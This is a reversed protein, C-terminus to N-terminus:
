QFKIKVIITESLFFFLCLIIFLKWYQKGNSQENYLENLKMKNSSILSFQESHDKILKNLESENYFESSSEARSYNYSISNILSDSCRILYNEAKKIQDKPFLIMGKESHNSQEPIFDIKLENNLIHFPADENKVQKIKIAKPYGIQHYIPTSNTTNRTLNILSPVIIPHTVLNTWKPNLQTTFLYIQGKGYNIKSLIPDKGRTELLNEVLRDGSNQTKFHKFIDPLRADDKLKEFVNQYIESNLEIKALKQANSDLEILRPARIESLFQNCSEEINESPIFLLRGGNQMYNTLVHRFGSEMKDIQNIVVLQYLELKEKFLDTKNRNVLNFTESGSFLKTLYKNPSDQNISLINNEKNIFYSFFLSNDYTIPYDNLEVAGKNIGVERNYYKLKVTKNSNKKIDFSIESKTTNNISIKLPIKAYDINSSNRIKVLLEEAQNLQHFPKEFWCSDVILNDTRQLSLPLLTINSNSDKAINKFDSQNKQFDSFAYIRVNEEKKDLNIIRLRDSLKAVIPSPTIEQIKTIAQEKNLSQSSVNVQNSYIRIQSHNPFSNILDIAKNKAVDLAIGQKTEANMSFSNDIYISFSESKNAKKNNEDILYPQAFAIIICALALLRLLLLIWKKVNSRKKNETSLNSLFKLNSFFIKQYRKFNFLHIIIPLSLATLAWLVEPHLFHLM